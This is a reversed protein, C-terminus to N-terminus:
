SVSGRMWVCVYVCVSVSSALQLCNCMEKPHNMTYVSM